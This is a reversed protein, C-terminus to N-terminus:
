HFAPRSEPELIYNIGNILNVAQELVLTIRAKHGVFDCLRCKFSKELYQALGRAMNRSVHLCFSRVYLPSSYRVDAIVQSVGIVTDVTFYKPFDM